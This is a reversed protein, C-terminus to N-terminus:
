PTLNIGCRVRDKSRTRACSRSSAACTACSSRRSSTLPATRAPYMIRHLLQSRDHVRRLDLAEPRTQRGHPLRRRGEPTPASWWSRTPEPRHCSARPSPKWNRKRASRSSRWPRTEGVSLRIRKPKGVMSIYAGPAATSRRRLGRRAQSTRQPLPRRPLPAERPAQCAQHPESQDYRPSHSFFILFNSIDRRSFRGM